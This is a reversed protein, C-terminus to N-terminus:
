FLSIDFIQSFLNRVPCKGYYWGNQVLVMHQPPGLARLLRSADQHKGHRRNFYDASIIELILIYHQM